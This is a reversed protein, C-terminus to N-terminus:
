YPWNPSLTALLPKTRGCIGIKPARPDVRPFRGKSFVHNQLPQGGSIYLLTRQSGKTGPRVLGWRRCCASVVLGFAYSTHLRCTCQALSQSLNTAHIINLNHVHLYLVLMFFLGLMFCAYYLCLFLIPFAYSFCAYSFCLFLVPFGSSFCLFLM